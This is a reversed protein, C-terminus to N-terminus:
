LESSQCGDLWHPVSWPSYVRSNEDGCLGAPTAAGSNPDGRVDWQEHSTRPSAGVKQDEGALGVFDILSTLFHKKQKFHNGQALLKWAPSYANSHWASLHVPPALGPPPPPPPGDVTVGSALSRLGFRLILTL